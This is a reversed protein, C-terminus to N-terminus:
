LFCLAAVSIFVIAFVFAGMALVFPLFEKMDQWFWILQRRMHWKLDYRLLKLQREWKRRM